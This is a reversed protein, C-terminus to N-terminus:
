EALSESLDKLTDYEETKSFDKDNAYAFIRGNGDSYFYWDDGDRLGNANTRVSGNTGILADTTLDAFRVGSLREGDEDYAQGANARLDKSDVFTVFDEGSESDTDIVAARYRDESSAAMRRGYKYYVKRVLGTTGAGRTDAGGTSSFNFSYNDGDINVTTNGTKMSGDDGDGFYYVDGDVKVSSDTLDDLDDADVSDNLVEVIEGNEVKLLVLGDLMAGNEDFGYYRGGIRRIESTVLTGDGNAYYWKEEEDDYRDPDFDEDAVVKFWGRTVRAGDEPSNFYSWNSASAYDSTSGVSQNWEYVMVGDEDFGYTKGNIRRTKIIDGDAIDDATLEFRHGNSNFYFWKDADEDEDSQANYVNIRQWGTKMAGDEWTGFYYMAEKWGEEGDHVMEGDESVWGYLMRGDDDFAYRRGDITRTRVSDRDSSKYAKGNSQFYYYRYEAPDTDDDQDENVLRVWTNTVMVGNADVFYTDDDDEILKELAMAGDEEGDLWYWNDGSRRWEDQVRNEDRDYYYWQGDEEVWGTAAFSTMSAGIALLSAASAAAVFKTQKRM